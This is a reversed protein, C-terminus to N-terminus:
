TQSFPLKPFLQLSPAAGGMGQYDRLNYHRDRHNYYRQTSVVVISGIRVQVCSLRSCNITHNVVGTLTQHCFTGTCKEKVFVSFRWGTTAKLRKMLM